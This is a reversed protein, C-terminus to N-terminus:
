GVEQPQVPEPLHYPSFLETMGSCEACVTDAHRGTGDCLHCSILVGESGGDWHHIATVVRKTKYRPHSIALRRFRRPLVREAIYQLRRAWLHDREVLWYTKGYNYSMARSDRKSQWIPYGSVESMDAWDNPDDTLPTLTRYNLLRGMIAQGYPASGGSWGGAAFAAVADEMSKAMDPDSSYWGSRYLERHAHEKLTM